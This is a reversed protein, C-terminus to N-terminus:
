NMLYPYVLAFKPINVKFFSGTEINKFNYFGKMRGIGSKLFCASVYHYYEGPLIIPKEGVVGEGEIIKTPQTSDFIDWYRSILQVPFPNDNYINIFYSFVYKRNKPDSYEEQFVSKVDIRINNNDELLM